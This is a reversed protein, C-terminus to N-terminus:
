NSLPNQVTPIMADAGWKTVVLYGYPVPQLIIPDNVFMRVSMPSVQSRKFEVRHGVVETADGFRKFMSQDAVVMPCVNHALHLRNARQIHDVTLRLGVEAFQIINRGSREARWHYWMQGRDINVTGFEVLWPSGHVNIKLYVRYTREDPNKVLTFHEGVPIVEFPRDPDAPEYGTRFELVGSGESHRGPFSMSGPTGNNMAMRYIRGPIDHDTFVADVDHLNFRSIELRNKVPITASFAMLSGFVLGYRHCIETIQSETVFNHFPYRMRYSEVAAAFKQHGVLPPAIRQLLASENADRVSELLDFSFDRHIREVTTLEM